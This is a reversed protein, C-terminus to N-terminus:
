PSGEGGFGCSPIGLHCYFGVHDSGGGLNDFTPEDRDGLWARHISQPSDSRAQPVDRTVEDIIRKLSPASSSGFKPGMSAADLNIYAVASQHLDFANQECFETSGIIGYEEAGWTAFVIT